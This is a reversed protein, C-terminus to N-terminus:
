AFQGQPTARARCLHQPSPVLPVHGACPGASPILPVHGACPGACVHEGACSRCQPCHSMAQVPGFRCPSQVAARINVLNLEHGSSVDLFNSLYLNDQFYSDGQGGEYPTGSPISSGNSPPKHKDSSWAPVETSHFIVPVYLKLIEGWRVPSASKM